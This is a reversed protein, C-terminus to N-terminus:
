EEIKQVASQKGHKDLIDHNNDVLCTRFQLIVWLRDGRVCVVAIQQVEKSMWSVPKPKM